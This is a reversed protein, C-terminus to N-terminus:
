FRGIAVVEGEVGGVRLGEVRVRSGTARTPSGSGRCVSESGPDQRGALAFGQEEEVPLASAELVEAVVDAGVSFVEPDDGDVEQPVPQGLLRWELTRQDRAQDFLDVVDQVREPDVVEEELTLRLTSPNRCGVREGIGATDALQHQGGRGADNGFEVRISGSRNAVCSADWSSTSSSGVSSATLRRMDPSTPSKATMSASCIARREQNMRLGCTLAPMRAAIM